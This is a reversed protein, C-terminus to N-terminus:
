EFMCRWQERCGPVSLEDGLAGNRGLVNNGRRTEWKFDDSKNGGEWFKARDKRERSGRAHTV